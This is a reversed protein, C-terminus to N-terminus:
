KYKKDSIIAQINFNDDKGSFKNNKNHINNFM